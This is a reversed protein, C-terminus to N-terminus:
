QYPMISTFHIEALVKKNNKKDRAKEEVQAVHHSTSILPVLHACLRLLATLFM